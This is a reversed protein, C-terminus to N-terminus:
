REVSQGVRFDHMEPNHSAKRILYALAYDGNPHTQLTQALEFIQEALEDGLKEYMSDRERNQAAQERLKMQWEPNFFQELSGSVGLQNLIEWEGRDCWFGECENCREVFFPNPYQVKARSLYRQCEPCLAAKSDSPAPTYPLLGPQNLLEATAEQPPHTAQWHSYQANAVWHGECQTCRQVVVGEPRTTELLTTHRCKPCDM